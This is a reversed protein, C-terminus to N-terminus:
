IWEEVTKGVFDFGEITGLNGKMNGGLMLCPVYERTHDTGPATPDCGHDATIVLLDSEDLLNLIEPLRADFYELADKYGKADRRHGYLMDFDVLNTFIFDSDRASLHAITADIGAENNKTHDAITIGRHAFIDEIKGIALTRFGANKLRDLTTDCPPEVSYDRRNETRTFGNTEDVTFPRAIVRGVQMNHKDLLERAQLCMEYLRALPIVDEHAAIQFVSDASTYVIPFGTRVHESGLRQIIETGSAPINGLTHTGWAKEIIEMFERPFGNEYIRFGQESIIGMLEWHGTVTDKGHSKESLRAYSGKVSGDFRPLTTGEVSYLGLARLNPLDLGCASYIHGATDPAIDGFEACDPMAGIGFSDLVIVTARRKMSDTGKMTNEDTM